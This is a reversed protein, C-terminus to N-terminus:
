DCVKAVEEPANSNMVKLENIECLSEWNQTHEAQMYKCARLFGSHVNDGWMSRLRKVDDGDEGNFVSTTTKDLVVSTKSPSFFIQQQTIQLDGGHEPDKPYLLGPTEEVNLSKISASDSQSADEDVEDSYKTWSCIYEQETTEMDKEANIAVFAHGTSNPKGDLYAKLNKTFDEPTLLKLDTALLGGIEKHM